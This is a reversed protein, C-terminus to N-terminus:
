RCSPWEPLRYGGPREREDGDDPGGEPLEYAEALLDDLESDIAKVEADPDLGHKRLMAVGEDSTAFARRHNM